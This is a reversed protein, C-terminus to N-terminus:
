LQRGGKATPLFLCTESRPLSQSWPHVVICHYPPSRIQRAKCNGGACKLVVNKTYIADLRSSGGRYFYTHGARGPHMLRYSDSFSPCLLSRTRNIVDRTKQEPDYRRRDMPEVTENFDGALVASFHTRTHHIFTLYAQSTAKLEECDDEMTDLGSPAYVSAFSILQDDYHLTVCLLRGKWIYRVKSAYDALSDRVLVAVGAHALPSLFPKFGFALATSKLKKAQFTEQLCLIDIHADVAWALIDPYSNSVRGM